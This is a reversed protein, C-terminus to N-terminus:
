RVKSRRKWEGEELSTAWEHYLARIIEPPQNTLAVIQPLPFRRAFMGFVRAALRGRRVSTRERGKPTAAGPRPRKPPMTAALAEVEAPDFRWVGREDATPHLRDWELRRVTSITVGLREAVQARGLSAAHGAGHNQQEETVLAHYELREPRDDTCAALQRHPHREITSRM